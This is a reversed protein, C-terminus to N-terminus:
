GTNRRRVEQKRNGACGNLNRESFIVPVTRRSKKMRIVNRASKWSIATRERMAEDIEIIGTTVRELFYRDHTVMLLSMQQAGLYDELWEIVDLDLHNTPEDLLLLDPQRLLVRALGVRKRQGGSLSAVKQDLDHLNLRGLIERAKSEYSWANLTDMQASMASLEGVLSPDSASRYLLEEYRRVLQMLPDESDLVAQLVTLESDIEPQQELYAMNLGTRRAVEGSAPVEAGALIKLFTSKGCGNVGVLALKQGQEIGLSIDDLLTRDGFRVTVHDASLLNM